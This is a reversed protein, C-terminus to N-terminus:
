LHLPVLLLGLGISVVLGILLQLAVVKGGSRFSFVPWLISGAALTLGVVGSKGYSYTQVGFVAFGVAIQVAPAVVLWKTKRSLPRDEDSAESMPYMFSM